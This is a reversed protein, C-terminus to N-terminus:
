ETPELVAQGVYFLVRARDPEPVLTGENHEAVRARLTAARVRMEELLGYVETKMPHGNWVCFSYTSGGNSPNATAPEAGQRLKICLTTVMAQYHDLVAAEWGHPDEPPIVCAKTSYSAEGNHKFSREIRAQELLSSLSEELDASTMPAAELIQAPTATVLRSIIVWVVNALAQGSDPRRLLQIDETSAVRYGVSDGQGTQYVIGSNVLDSLVGKVTAADDAAFRLLVDARSTVKAVQLHDYIAEWLSRGGYTASSQLRLVKEQYSRLALGFMDAAVRNPVGQRKLESVLDIFVQNATHALSPRGGRATALQAVLLTTQRVISDILINVNM